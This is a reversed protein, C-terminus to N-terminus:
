ESERQDAVDLRDLRLRHRGDSLLRVGALAAIFAGLGSAGGIVSLIMIQYKAAEVPDAGALIQGTMMGPLTVVGAVSMANLVPLLATKMTQRLIAAFATTRSFGLALQADITRQERQGLDILTNLALSVGTLTNGLIMGLLPLFVRPDLLSTPGDDRGLLASVAVMTALTSVVLLTSGGLWYNTWGSFRPRQRGAIEYTAVGIMVLGAAITVAVSGDAFVIRLVLGVLSLQVVMRVAAIALTRELGLRLAVSIIANIILLAAAMGLDLAGLAPLTM